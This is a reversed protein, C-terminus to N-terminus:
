VRPMCLLERMHMPFCRLILFGEEILCTELNLLLGLIVLTLITDPWCINRKTQYMKLSKEAFSITGFGIMIAKLLGMPLFLVKGLWVIIRLIMPLPNMFMMPLCTLIITGLLHNMSM